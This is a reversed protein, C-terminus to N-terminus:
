STLKIKKLYLLEMPNVELGKVHSKVLLNQAAIFLSIIPVDTMTLITQAEDYIVQRKSPDSEAAGQAVLRDYRPNSWHLHNNGSTSIFLNMFNDPDPFDAGWGLRFIQPPDLQLRKLFVKWEQSEIEVNVNLHEKWQAQVFEAVLRNTDDTNYVTTVSPFGKGGPYGAQALLQRAKEPDFAPGLDPNYGLMGKPIWSATPREGGQLILPIKSRDIAHALARRVLPDDVPPTKVNFGYYYGRLLPLNIYGPQDQYHPIAVSPLEVMDLEGTEYLTLATIAERVIYVLITDVEPPGEYFKDNAKLILKYEHQWEALTFPGNTVIKDPDTWHGGYKSIID